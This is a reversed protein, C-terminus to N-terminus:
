EGTEFTNEPGAELVAVSINPDESLRGALVLGATGGGIIVYDFGTDSM